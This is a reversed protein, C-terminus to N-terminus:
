KKVALCYCIGKPAIIKNNPNLNNYKEFYTNTMEKNNLHEYILLGNESLIDEIEKYSYKSKMQENAGSALKENTQTEKSDEYTPYDFIISSGNCLISSISKIMNSFEEKALYYSIGLLSSFSIQNKDYNSNIINNIWNKNTFDCKIFNVKSYDLKNKDLRRIKDEIMESKDIEFVKLNDINSRYAFTDYGSAFILYEKCGIKIANLLTKECFASRGLVSPSLQNDVIWKLANEKTGVFNPNFFKIGNAMNSAISSYEEDSLIKEAINDSFIRYNNNKYHYCRAFCSVLATMNKEEM